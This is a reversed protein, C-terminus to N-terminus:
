GRLVALARRLMNARAEAEALMAVLAADAERVTEGRCDEDGVTLFVGGTADETPAEVTLTAKFTWAAHHPDCPPLDVSALTVSERGEAFLLHGLGIHIAYNRITM